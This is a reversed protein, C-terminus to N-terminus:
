HIAILFICSVHIMPEKDIINVIETTLLDDSEALTNPVIESAKIKLAPTNELAIHVCIQMAAAKLQENTSEYPAFIYKELSPESGPQMRRPALSAKLGRMEVGGCQLINVDRYMTVPVGKGASQALAQQHRAPDIFARQLRTPLYLERTSQGLISFQLMCDMFSIWNDAWQLRGTVGRNEASAIGQFIGAYDYGRLRLEKYIDNTSLPLLPEKEHQPAPTPLNLYEKQPEEPQRIKGSVAVSGGESLEFQGSSEFITILFKVSGEKPMITARHFQIDELVVPIDEPSKGLLKAFM